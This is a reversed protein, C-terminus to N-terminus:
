QLLDEEDTEISTSAPPAIGLQERLTSRAHEILGGSGNAEASGGVEPEPSEEESGHVVYKIVARVRQAHSNPVPRNYMQLQRMCQLTTMLRTSAEDVVTSRCGQTIREALVAKAGTTDMNCLRLLTRCSAVTLAKIRANSSIDFAGVQVGADRREGDNTDTM